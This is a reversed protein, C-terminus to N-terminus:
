LQEPTGALRKTMIHSLRVMLHNRSWKGQRFCFAVRAAQAKQRMRSRRWHMPVRGAATFPPLGILAGSCDPSSAENVSGRSRSFGLNARL